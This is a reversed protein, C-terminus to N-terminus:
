TQMAVVDTPLQIIPRGYWTWNYAYRYRGMLLMLRHRLERVEPDAEMADLTASDNPIWPLHDSASM